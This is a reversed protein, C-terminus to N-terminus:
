SGSAAMGILHASPTAEGERKKFKAKPNQLCVKAQPYLDLIIDLGGRTGKFINESTIM